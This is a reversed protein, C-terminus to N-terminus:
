EPCVPCHEADDASAALPTNGYAGMNVQCGNPFPELSCDASSQGSDIAPSSSGLAVNDEEPNLFLPDENLCSQGVSANQAQGAACSFLVSYNASLLGTNDAKGVLCHGDMNSFVSNIIPVPTEQGEGLAVGQGIGCESGPAYCTFHKVAIGAVEDLHLCYASEPCSLYTKGAQPQVAVNNEFLVDSSSRIRYSHGSGGDGFGPVSSPATSAGGNLKRVLNSKVVCSQCNGLEIGSSEGGLGGGAPAASKGGLGGAIAGVDNEAITCGACGDVYIGRGHGGHTPGYEGDVGWKWYGAEGEFNTVTNGEITVDTSDLVVLKGLNTPNVAKTLTLGSVLVGNAGHFYVIPDGEVSNNMAVQNDRSTVDLYIGFAQQPISTHAPAPNPLGGVLDSFKNAVLQNLKSGDGLFIGAALGGTNATSCYGKGGPGSMGGSVAAITNGVIVSQGAHTLWIAAGAGGPPARTCGAGGAGNSAGGLGGAVGSINNSVLVTGDAWRVMVGSGLGGVHPVGPGTVYEGQGGVTDLIECGSVSVDDAYEIFVGASSLSKGYPGSQGEIIVSSVLGGVLSAQATGRFHVGYHGGTVTMSMLAVDHVTVLFGTEGDATAVSVIDSGQGELVLGVKDVVVGGAYLGENVHIKYSPLAADVAEQISDFPHETSGDEDPGGGSLSDVWLEGSFFPEYECGDEPEGNLDALGPPCGTVVCQGNQCTVGAVDPVDCTTGCTGCNAMDTWLDFGEDVLGNCDDDVGNCLEQGGITCECGNGPLGDSNQTNPPCGEFECVKDVCIGVKSPNLTTCVNDCTGCNTADTPLHSECGTSEDGDCDFYDPSCVSIACSGNACKPFANPFTCLHGCEGCHSIDQWVETECGTAINLDCDGYLLDDVCNVLTCEGELCKAVANDLTCDTGDPQVSPQCGDPEACVAAVCQGGIGLLEACDSDSTELGGICAGLASCVTDTTCAIQDNCPEGDPLLEAFCKGPEPISDSDCKATTCPTLELEAACDKPVGACVGVNCVEDVTCADGDDCVVNGPLPWVNCKQAVPDCYFKECQTADCDNALGLCEGGTCADDLTCWNADDCDMGENTATNVCTLSVDCIDMTCPNGDDCLPGVAECIGANCMSAASCESGDDCALGQNNQSWSQGNESPLCILCEFDADGEPHAGLAVCIGDIICADPKRMHECLGSEPNCTDDTCALEDLCDVPPGLCVGDVCTSDTTCLNGDDCATGEPADSAVLPTAPDCVTCDGVAEADDFCLDDILCKGAPIQNACGGLEEDCFGPSCDTDHGACDLGESGSCEGESCSDGTTCVLEDDCLYGEARPGCVGAKGPENCGQCEEDCASGCCVGDACYGSQCQHSGDCAEAIGKRPTCLGSGDVQECFFGSKTCGLDSVCKADVDVKVPLKVTGLTTSNTLGNSVIVLTGEGLGYWPVLDREVTATVTATEGPGLLPAGTQQLTLWNGPPTLMYSLEGDGGNRILLTTSEESQGFLLEGAPDLELVPQGVTLVVDVKQTEQGDAEVTIKGLYSGPLLEQWDTVSVLLATSSGSGLAGVEPEVKLWTTGEASASVKVSFTVNGGGSNKVELFQTAAGVSLELAAPVVELLPPAEDASSGPGCGHLLFACVLSLWCRVNM